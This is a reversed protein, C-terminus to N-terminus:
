PGVELVVSLDCLQYIVVYVVWTQVPLPSLLRDSKTALKKKWEDM